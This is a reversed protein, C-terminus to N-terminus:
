VRVDSNKGLVLVLSTNILWSIMIVIQWYIVLYSYSNKNPAVLDTSRVLGDHTSVGKHGTLYEYYIQPISYIYDVGYKVCAYSSLQDCQDQSGKKLYLLYTDSAYIQLYESRLSAGNFREFQRKFRDNEKNFYVITSFLSYKKLLSDFDETEGSVVQKNVSSLVLDNCTHYRGKQYIGSCRNFPSILVVQEQQNILKAVNSYDNIELYSTALHGGTSSSLAGNLYLGYINLCLFGGLVFAIWKQREKSLACFGICILASIFVGFKNDPTRIMYGFPVKELIFTYVEGFPFNPGKAMFAAAILLAIILNKQTEYLFGILLVILLISVLKYWPSFYFDAFNLISRPSWDSYIAWSSIQMLPYFISGQIDAAASGHMFNQVDRIQYNLFLLIAISAISALYVLMLSLPFRNIRLGILSKRQVIIAVLLLIGAPMLFMLNGAFVLMSSSIIWINKRNDINILAGLYIPMLTLATVTTLVYFIGSSYFISLVPSFCYALTVILLMVNSLSFTSFACFSGTVLVLYCSLVHILQAQSYSFGVEILAKLFIRDPTHLYFAILNKSYNEGQNFLGFTGDFLGSAVPYFADHPSFVQDEFLAFQGGFGYIMFSIFLTAFYIPWKSQILNIKCPMM